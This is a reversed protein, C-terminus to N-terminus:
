DYDVSRHTLNTVEQFSCINFNDTYGLQFLLGCFASAKRLAHLKAIIAAGFLPIM